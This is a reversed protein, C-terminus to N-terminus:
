EYYVDDKYKDRAKEEKAKEKKNKDQKEEDILKFKEELEKVEAGLKDKVEEFWLTEEFEKSQDLIQTLFALGIIFGDDSIYGGKYNKKLLKEKAVLLSQIYDLTLAPILMYFFSLNKFGDGQLKGIYRKSIV